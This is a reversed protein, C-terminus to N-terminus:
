QRNDRFKSVVYHINDHKQKIPRRECVGAFTVGLAYIDARFPSYSPAMEMMEPAWYDRTGNCVSELAQSSSYQRAFGFDAIKAVNKDTILINKMKIDAHAIFKDHLSQLGSIVDRMYDRTLINRHDLSRLMGHLDGKACFETFIWYADVTEM